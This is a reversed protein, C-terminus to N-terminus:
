QGAAPPDPEQTFTHWRRLSKSLSATPQKGIEGLCALPWCFGLSYFSGVTLRLKSVYLFEICIPYIQLFILEKLDREFCALHVKNHKAKMSCTAALVALKEESVWSGSWVTKTM